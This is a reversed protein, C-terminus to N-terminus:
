LERAAGDPGASSTDAASPGSGKGNASDVPNVLERGERHAAIWRASLADFSGEGGSEGPALSARLDRAAALRVAIEAWDLERLADCVPEAATPPKGEFM